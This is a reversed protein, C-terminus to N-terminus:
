FVNFSTPIAHWFTHLCPLSSIVTFTFKCVRDRCRKVNCNCVLTLVICYWTTITTQPRSWLAVGMCNFHSSYIIYMCVFAVQSCQM